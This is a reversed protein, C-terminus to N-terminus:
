LPPLEPISGLTFNKYLDGSQPAARQPQHGVNSEGAASISPMIGSHSGQLILPMLTRRPTKGMVLARSPDSLLSSICSKKEALANNLAHLYSNLNETARIQAYAECRLEEPSYDGHIINDGNDWSLNLGYCSLPWQM